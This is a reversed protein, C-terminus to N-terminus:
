RPDSPWNPVVIHWQEPAVRILEEFEEALAQTMAQVQERRNQGLPISLPPRIVVHHGGDSFYTAVPFLPAGTKIALTAPGPPLTTVEDFFKVEVGRGRLDRDSLLAVAKNSAIAEELQRMVERGGTALVIDIGMEARMATFWDTIRRNPLNEAVAVVRIDHRGAIPAAMEWNGMHPLAYIMGRGEDRAALVMDLGEITTNALIEPVRHARVWLAEAYYRGYYGMVRKAAQSADGGEGMVRSMHRRAMELRRRDVLQWLWGVWHGLRRVARAPLMGVLGMGLRLGAYALLQSM